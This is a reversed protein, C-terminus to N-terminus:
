KHLLQYKVFAFRRSDSSWSNVNISGQGGFFELICHNDSGDSNMLNLRVNMNPLHENPDLGDKSYSLYVIKKGDPSFHGFWNNREDFTLQVPDTGDRNMIWNQMLGTRTSIFLIKKGDPSYEPGDNFGANSTLQKEEGGGAPISYVDVGLKDEHMRFACYCLEEGDPSWGHLFSPYNPTILRPEGGDIPLIYIQSQWGTDSHSVAIATNDPSLVHDNNCSVCKGSDIVSSVGSSISYKYIRGESNYILTDDDSNLWNPAEIVGDFTKLETVSNLATDFICLTSRSNAREQAWGHFRGCVSATATLMDEGCDDMDSIQILEKARAFQFCAACDVEGDGIKTEVPGAPTKKFDKYHLSRVINENDWLFKEPDTGGYYLWGIDPQAFLKGDCLSLIKEYPTVGSPMPLSSNKDNHLLLETGTGELMSCAAKVAAAFVPYDAENDFAPCPLVIQTIGFSIRLRNILDIDALINKTIFHASCLSFGSSKIVPYYKDLTEVTWFLKELGPINESMLCPEIYRFGAKKLASLFYEPDNLFSQNLSFMQASFRM